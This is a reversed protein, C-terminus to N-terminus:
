LQSHLDSDVLDVNFEFTDIQECEVEYFKDDYVISNLLRDPWQEQLVESVNSDNWDCCDIPRLKEVDFEDAEIECSYVYDYIHGYQLAFQVSDADDALGDNVLQEAVQKMRRRIADVIIHVHDDEEGENHRDIIDQFIEKSIGSQEGALKMTDVLAFDESPEDADAEDAMGYDVVLANEELEESDEDDICIEVGHNSVYFDVIIDYMRETNEIYLSELDYLLDIDFCNDEVMRISEEGVIPFLSLRIATQPNLSLKVKNTNSNQNNLKAEVAKIVNRGLQSTRWDPNVELGVEEAIERLAPASKPCLEGNKYVEMKSDNHRVIRWDGYTVDKKIM